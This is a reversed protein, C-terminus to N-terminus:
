PPPFTYYVVAHGLLDNANGSPTFVLAYSYAADITHNLSESFFTEGPTTSIDQQAGIGASTNADDHQRFVRASATGSSTKDIYLEWSVLVAGNPLSIPYVIQTAATAAVLWRLGFGARTHAPTGFEISAAASIKLPITTTHYFRPATVSTPANVPDTGGPGLLDGEVTLDDGITADDTVDLDTVTALGTVDLDVDVQLSGTIQHDGDFVGDDIYQFWKYAENNWLNWNQAPPKEEPRWGVAKQPATTAIKTPTGQEPESGAPYNADTAWAVDAITPKAAM